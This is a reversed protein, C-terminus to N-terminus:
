RAYSELYGCRDCRYTTIQYRETGSLKTGSWFSREPTGEVWEDPRVTHGSPGPIEFGQEMAGDCKPCQRQRDDSAM